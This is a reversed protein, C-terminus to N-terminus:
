VSRRGSVVYQLGGGATHLQNATLRHAAERAESLRRQWRVEFENEDGGGALYYRKTDSASRGVWRDSKADELMATRLARQAPSSYPPVLAFTKDNLFTQIDLLGAQAFYGPLLDGVSNDGEGLAAKGRECILAFAVREVLKDTPQDGTTSDAVLMGALNNPEAVLLLGGPRLVRCMEGLVTPVDAVHILLTQCTVLDFTEHDFELSEAVGQVYRCRDAVGLKSARERARQVWRADREVGVITADMALLPLLVTGWHGVGAGVDLVSRVDGLGLRGALLQLYDLNWWFDRQANLYAASHPEDSLNAPGPGARELIEAVVTSKAAAYDNHTPWKHEALCRKTAEYLARDDASQRLWDRFRLHRREWESGATCVHVHVALDPTRLMRHGGERVRLRYGARELAPLYINEEEVDRVSVDIDIIPKAALGPVATSGIHDIRIAAPGLVAALRNREQAFRAPWESRYEVIVVPRKEPGGILEVQSSVM